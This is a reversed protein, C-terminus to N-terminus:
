AACFDPIQYRLFRPNEGIALPPSLGLKLGTVRVWAKPVARLARRASARVAVFVTMFVLSLPMPENRWASAM